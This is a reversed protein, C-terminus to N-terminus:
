FWYNDDWDKGEYQSIFRDRFYRNSVGGIGYAGGMRIMRIFLTSPYISLIGLFRKKVGLAPHYYIDYGLLHLPTLVFQFLIPSAM